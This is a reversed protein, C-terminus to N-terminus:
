APEPHLWAQAGLRALLPHDTRGTAAVLKTLADAWLCRHALVSVQLAREGALPAHLRSRAQGGFASSALAGAQLEGWPRLGGGHDDRRLVPVRAQGFARLDGGANVWGSHCGAAQLARVAEDVAHGKAVGGLDLSARADLKHLTHGAVLWRGSGLAIDFAGNSARYLAQAARLVRASLAQVALSTGAPADRFRSTDSHPDFRSLAAQVRSIVAFGADCAQQAHGHDAPVGIEVLTGLAPQARRLWAPGSPNIPAPRM